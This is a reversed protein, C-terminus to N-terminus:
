TEDKRTKWLYDILIFCNGFFFLSAFQLSHNYILLFQTFVFNILLLVGALSRKFNRLWPWHYVTKNTVVVQGNKIKLGHKTKGPVPKERPLWSRPIVAEDKEEPKKRLPEVAKKVSRKFVKKIKRQTKELFGTITM